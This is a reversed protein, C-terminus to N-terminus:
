AGTVIATMQAGKVEEDDEATPRPREEDPAAPADEDVGEARRVVSRRTAPSSSSSARRPAVQRAAAVHRPGVSTPAAHAAVDSVGWGRPRVSPAPPPRVAAAVSPRVAAAFFGMTSARGALWIFHVPAACAIVRWTARRLM